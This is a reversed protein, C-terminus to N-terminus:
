RGRTVIRQRVVQRQPARVKQVRVAQVQQIHQVQVQQVPVAFQQVAFPQVFVQQAAYPQVFQQVQLQGGCGAKASSCVALMCALLMVAAACWALPNFNKM